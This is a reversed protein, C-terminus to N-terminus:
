GDGDELKADPAGKRRATRVVRYTRRGISFDLLVVAKDRTLSIIDRNRREDLRPVKGFLAFVIADLLSTKGSGTAGWIAFLELGDFSVTQQQKFCSFGELTLSVPRM